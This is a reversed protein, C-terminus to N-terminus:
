NISDYQPGASRGADASIVNTITLTSQKGSLNIKRRTLVVPLGEFKWEHRSIDGVDTDPPGCTLTMTKGTYTQAPPPIPSLGKPSLM